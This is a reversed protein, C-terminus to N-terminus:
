WALGHYIGAVSHKVFGNTNLALYIEWIYNEELIGHQLGHINVVNNIFEEYVGSKYYKSLREKEKVFDKNVKVSSLWYYLAM